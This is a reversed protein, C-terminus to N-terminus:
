RAKKTSARSQGADVQIVQNKGQAM